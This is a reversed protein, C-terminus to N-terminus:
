PMNFVFLSVTHDVAYVTLPFGFLVPEWANQEPNCCEQLLFKQFALAEEMMYMFSVSLVKHDSLVLLNM